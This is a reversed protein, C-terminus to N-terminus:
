LWQFPFLSSPLLPPSAIYDIKKQKGEGGGKTERGRGIAKSPPALKTFTVNEFFFSNPQTNPLFYKNKGSYCKIHTL